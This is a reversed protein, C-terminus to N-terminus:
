CAATSSSSSRRRIDALGVFEWLCRSTEVSFSRWRPLDLQWKTIGDCGTNPLSRQPRQRIRGPATSCTLCANKDLPDMAADKSIADPHEVYNEGGAHNYRLHCLCKISDYYAVQIHFKALQVRCVGKTEQAVKRSPGLHLRDWSSVHSRGSISNMTKRSAYRKRSTHTRPEFCGTHM